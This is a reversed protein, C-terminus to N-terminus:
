FTVEEFRAPDVTYDSLRLWQPIVKIFVTEPLGKFEVAEPHSRFYVRECEKLAKGTEALEVRGEYQINLEEFSWGFTLAVLPNEKLNQWKRSTKDTSLIVTLGDMVAYGMVACEPKGTKSSTAIVCLKPDQNKLFNFVEETVKEAM